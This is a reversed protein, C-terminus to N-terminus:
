RHDHDHGGSRQWTKCQDESSRHRDDDCECATGDQNCEGHRNCYERDGPQCTLGTLYTDGDPILHWESGHPGSCPLRAESAGAPMSVIAQKKGHKAEVLIELATSTDGRRLLGYGRETQVSVVSVGPLAGVAAKVRVPDIGMFLLNSGQFAPLNGSVALYFQGQADWTDTGMVATHQATIQSEMSALAVLERPENNTAFDWEFLSNTPASDNIFYIKKENASVQMNRVRATGLFPSIHQCSLVGTRIRTFTRAEDDFVYLNLAIDMTYLRKGDRSWQGTYLGTFTTSQPLNGFGATPDWYSISGLGLQFYVRGQTDTWM